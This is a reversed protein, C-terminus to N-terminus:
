WYITSHAKHTLQHFNSPPPHQKPTHWQSITYTCKQVSKYSFPALTMKTCPLRKIRRYMFWGGKLMAFLQHSPIIYTHAPIFCHCIYTNTVGYKDSRGSESTSYRKEDGNAMFADTKMRIPWLPLKNRTDREKNEKLKRLKKKVSTLCRHRPQVWKFSRFISCFNLEFTNCHVTLKKFINIWYPTHKTDKSTSASKRRKQCINLLGTNLKLEQM